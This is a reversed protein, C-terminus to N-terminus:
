GPMLATGRLFTKRGEELSNTLHDSATTISGFHHTVTDGCYILKYGARRIRFSIDDDLFEGRFFRTDYYGIRNLLATPCCLVNPLLVVREEWKSPDSINYERAKERFDAKSIFPMAIQQMNSISTAGPSVFGFDPDSEICILLNNM